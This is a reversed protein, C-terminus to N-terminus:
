PAVVLVAERLLRRAVVIASDADLGPLEAVRAREGTALRRVAESAEDPLSVSRNGLLISIRGDHEALRPALGHRWRVRTDGTLDALAAVTALPSVPEPRTDRVFRDDFSRAM